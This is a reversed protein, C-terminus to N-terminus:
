KFVVGFPHIGVSYRTVLTGDPKYEYVFGSKDYDNVGKDSSIFVHGNNPNINLANPMAPAEGAAFSFTSSQNNRTDFRKMNVQSTNNVYDAQPNIAYLTDNHMALLTGECYDSVQGDTSIKQVKPLVDKYNGRCVVFLDGLKNNVIQGPNLGVTYDTTKTFTHTDIVVVKKGNEYNNSFNYGDSITAYVKGNHAALGAPNPGVQLRNEDPQLSLTDLRTVYGNNSAIYVHKGEGCVAEPAESQIQSVIKLTNADLVWLVNSGFVPVYIKAGYRVATQPTDGLSQQNVAYFADTAVTHNNMDILDISGSVGGYQNGQILVYASTSSPSAPPTQPTIPDDDSCATIGASLLLLLASPLFHKFM